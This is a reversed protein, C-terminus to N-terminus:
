GKSPSRRREVPEMKVCFLMIVRVFLNSCISLLKEAFVKMMFLATFNKKSM